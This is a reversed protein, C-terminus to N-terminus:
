KKSNLLSDTILKKMQTEAKFPILIHAWVSRSLRYVYPFALVVLGTIWGLYWEMSGGIDLVTTITIVALIIAVQFAYSIYMSGTFFGPEPELTHRCNPCRSHMKYFDKHYVSKLFMNESRCSPCQQHLASQIITRNRM